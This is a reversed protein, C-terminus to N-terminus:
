VKLCWTITDKTDETDENDENDETDETDETDKTDETDETDQGGQSLIRGVQHYDELAVGYKRNIEERLKTLQHNQL